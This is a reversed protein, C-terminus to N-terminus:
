FNLNAGIMVTRSQPYNGYDVGSAVEPDYGTYKTVTFLNSASVYFRCRNIGIKSTCARPLTYGIQFNKLRLYAGNEVFRDSVSYNLSTNPNPISGNPNNKTWVDRMSTSLTAEVGKGETRNLVQNYIKNGYVGQFFLQVDFGKWEAGLNLGYTLWPFPNGIDTRDGGDIMGNNNLDAFKADGAHYPIETDSYGWLHQKAEEDSRYIGEYKYGYFTYLAYGEDNIRIGDVYQVEGGNLATLENKIFSVNGNITYNVKNIKNKHELAIEIGQNRVTGVNKTADYRNGIYAPGKVTLLMEKTDRRFLDVNGSLLGNFLGFIWEM